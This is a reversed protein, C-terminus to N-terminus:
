FPRGDCFMKNNEEEMQLDSLLYDVLLFLFLFTPEIRRNSCKIQSDAFVTGHVSKYTIYLDDQLINNQSFTLPIM